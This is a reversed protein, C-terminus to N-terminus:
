NFKFGQAECAQKFAERDTIVPTGAQDVSVAVRIEDTSAAAGHVAAKAMNTRAVNGGDEYGSGFHLCATNGQSDDQRFEDASPGGCATLMLAAAAVMPLVRKM